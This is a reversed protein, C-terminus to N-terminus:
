ESSYQICPAIHSALSVNNFLIFGRNEPLKCKLSLSYLFPVCIYVSLYTAQCTTTLARFVFLVLSLPCHTILINMPLCLLSDSFLVNPSNILYTHLGSSAQLFLLSPQPLRFHLPGSTPTCKACRLFISFVLHLTCSIHHSWVPLGIWIIFSRASLPWCNM